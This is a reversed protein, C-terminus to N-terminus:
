RAALLKAGVIRRDGRQAFAVAGGPTWSGDLAVTVSGDKGAVAVRRLERVVRDSALTEGQNEGRLVKTHTGDEWIAVWVDAGDPATATITVKKGDWAANAVVHAQKPAAAVAREVRSVQSGVMGAGGAVVLEPTYVSADGLSHAYQQQRETWAPSSFPDAWGLGNWYDVHFTLPALTRGGLQGTHALKNIYADASPCSSCGQSTFLEIVVPGEDARPEASTATACAALLLLPLRMGTRRALM